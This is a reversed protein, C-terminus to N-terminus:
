NVLKLKKNGAESSKISMSLEQYQWVTPWGGLENMMSLTAKKDDTTEGPIGAMFFPAYVVNNARLIRVTRRIQEDTIGKNLVENRFRESGSEVGFPAFQLGHAILFELEYESIDARIYTQFPVDVGEWQDRWEKMWYPSTTDLLYILRPNYAMRIEALDRAITHKIRVGEPKQYRVDCFTCHFPCGRSTQYPFIRLGKLFPYGRDFEYGTLHSLDPLPLNDLDDTMVEDFVRTDSDIIFDPLSSAEGRCVFDVLDPYIYGGRRAYPGGAIVIKGEQNATIMYPISAIYDSDTVFSFGAIDYGKVREQWAYNLPGYDADIDRERCISTLLAAGHNWNVHSPFYSFLISRM